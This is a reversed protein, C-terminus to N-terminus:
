GSSTPIIPREVAISQEVEYLVTLMVKGNESQEHLINESTIRADTGCRSLLETRAQRLGATKAQAATLKDRTTSVEMEREKLIGFPLTWRGLKWPYLVAGTRSEMYSAGGYGTIQVARNGVVWYTREQSAGTLTKEQRVLPSVIKM